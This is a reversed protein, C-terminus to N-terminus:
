LVTSQMTLFTFVTVKKRASKKMVNFAVIYLKIKFEVQGSTESEDWSLCVSHKSGSESSCQLSKGIFLAHANSLFGM